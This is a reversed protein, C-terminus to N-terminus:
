LAGLYLALKDYMSKLQAESLNTRLQSLQPDSKMANTNEMAMRIQATTAGSKTSPTSHCRLCHSAFLIQGEEIGNVGPYTGEPVVQGPADMVEISPFSKEIWSASLQFRLKVAFVGSRFCRVHYVQPRFRDVLAVCDATNKDFSIQSISAQSGSLVEFPLSIQTIMAEPPYLSKITQAKLNSVAFFTIAFAVIRAACLPNSIKKIALPWLAFLHVFGMRQGFFIRTHVERVM